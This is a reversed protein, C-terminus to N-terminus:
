KSRWVDLQNLLEPKWDGGYQKHIEKLVKEKRNKLDWHLRRSLEQQDDKCPLIKNVMFTYAFCKEISQITQVEVKYCQKEAYNLKAKMCKHIFDCYEPESMIVSSEIMSNVAECLTENVKLQFSYNWYIRDWATKYDQYTMFNKKFRKSDIKMYEESTLLPRTLHFFLEINLSQHLIKRIDDDIEKWRYNSRIIETEEEIKSEIFNQSALIYIGYLLMPASFFILVGGLFSDEYTCVFYIGLALITFTFIAGVVLGPGDLRESTLNDSSDDRMDNPLTSLGDLMAKAGISIPISFLSAILNTGFKTDSKHFPYDSRKAM